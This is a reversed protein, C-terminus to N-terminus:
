NNKDDQNILSRWEGCLPHMWGREGGELDRRVWRVGKGERGDVWGCQVIDWSFPWKSLNLIHPVSSPQWAMEGIVTATVKSFNWLGLVLGLVLPGRHILQVIVFTSSFICAQPQRKHQEESKIIGKSPEPSFSILLDSPITFALNCQVNWLMLCVHPFAIFLYRFSLM